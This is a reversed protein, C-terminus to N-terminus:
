SPKAQMQYEMTDQTAKNQNIDPKSGFLILNAYKRLQSPTAFKSIHEIVEGPLKTFHTTQSNLVSANWKLVNMTKEFFSFILEKEHESLNTGLRKQAILLYNEPQIQALPIGDQLKNEIHTQIFQISSQINNHRWIEKDSRHFQTSSLQNYLTNLPASQIHTEIETLKEVSEGQFMVAFLIRAANTTPDTLEKKDFQTLAALSLLIKTTEHNCFNSLNKYDAGEAILMTAIAITPIATHSDSKKQSNLSVWLPQDIGNRSLTIDAHHQLLLAVIKHRRKIVAAYLPTIGDSRAKNADAGHQLLLNVMAEKGNRAAFYLLTSGNRTISRNVDTGSQLLSQMREPDNMLERLSPSDIDPLM